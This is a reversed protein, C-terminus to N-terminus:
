RHAAPWASPKATATHCGCGASLRRRCTRTSPGNPENRNAAVGSRAVPVVSHALRVVASVQGAVPVAPVAAVQVDASVRERRHPAEGPAVAVRVAPATIVAAAVAPVHVRAQAPVHAPVM